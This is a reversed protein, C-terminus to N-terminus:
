EELEPKAEFHRSTLIAAEMKGAELDTAWTGVFDTLAAASEAVKASKLTQALRAMLELRGNPSLQTLQALYQDILQDESVAEPTAAAAANM